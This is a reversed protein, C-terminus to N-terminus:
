YIIRTPTSNRIVGVAAADALHITLVVVVGGAPGDGEGVVALVWVSVM